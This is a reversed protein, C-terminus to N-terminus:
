SAFADRYLAFTALKAMAVQEVVQEVVLEVVLETVLRLL